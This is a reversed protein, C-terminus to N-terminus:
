EEKPANLLAANESAPSSSLAPVPIPHAADEKKDAVQQKRDKDADIIELVCFFGIVLPVLEATLDGLASGRDVFLRGVIEPMRSLISLGCWIAGVWFIIYLVRGTPRRRKDTNM